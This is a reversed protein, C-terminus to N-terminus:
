NKVEGWLPPALNESSPPGPRTDGEGDPTPDADAGEGSFKKVKEQLITCEPATQLVERVIRVQTVFATNSCSELSELSTSFVSFATLIYYNVVIM